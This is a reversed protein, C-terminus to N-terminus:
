DTQEKIDDEMTVMMEFTTSVTWFYNFGALEEQEILALNIHTSGLGSNYQFEM